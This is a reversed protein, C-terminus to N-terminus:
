KKGRKSLGALTYIILGFFLVVAVFLQGVIQANLLMTVNESINGNSLDQYVATDLTGALYGSLQGTAFYPSASPALATTVGATMSMEDDSGVQEIWNTLSDKNGTLVIILGVENLQAQTETAVPSGALTTCDSAGKLCDSLQRLGIANGPLYGLDKAGYSNGVIQAVATGSPYQSITLIDRGQAALQALLTEAQPSLEGSLGPTYEFAVLVPSSDTSNVATEVAAVSAPVVTFSSKALPLLRLGVVIAVILLLSLAIRVGTALTGQVKTGIQTGSASEEHTIQQLLTIQEQQEPTVTFTQVPDTQHTQTVAAEIAIVGRLGALPGATEEPGEPRSPAGVANEDPPTPRLEEVWEPIDAQALTATLPMTPVDGLMSMWDDNDGDDSDGDAKLWDPIEPNQDLSPEGFAHIDGSAAAFTQGETLWDPLDSGALDTPLGELTEPIEPELSSLSGGLESPIDNEGPRMSAIWDPLAEDSTIPPLGLSEIENPTDDLQSMWDPMEGAMDMDLLSEEESAPANQPISAPPPPATSSEKPKEPPEEFKDLDAEAELILKGTDIDSLDSLWDGEGSLEDAPPPASLTDTFAKIDEDPGLFDDSLEPADSTIGELDALWDTEASEILSQTHALNEAFQESTEAPAFTDSDQEAASFWDPLDAEPTNAETFLTDFQDDTVTEWEPTDSVSTEKTPEKEDDLLNGLRQAVDSETSEQEDAAFDDWWSDDEEDDPEPFADTAPAVTTDSEDNAFSSLWDTGESEDPEPFSETYQTAPEETENFEALWNDDDEGSADPEPFSETYQTAPEETENFEALWNDDDEDSADPEPFSETYQTAPEETENFEALWDDDVSSSAEPETFNNLWDSGQNAPPPDSVATDDDAFLDISPEETSSTAELNSLWETTGEEEEDESPLSDSLWDPTEEEGDDSSAAADLAQLVTADPINSFIEEPDPVPQETQELDPIEDAEALWDPLNADKAGDMLADNQDLKLDDLDPLDDAKGVLDMFFETSITTPANIIPEPDSDHMLWGPLDDTQNKESKIEEIHPLEESPVDEDPAQKGGRRLWDPLTSPDLEGTEGPKRTPLTFAGSGAEPETIEPEETPPIEDPILRSGCNDCFVRDLSNATNCNPCLIHTSLPLKAGCNNCFKSGPTNAYNCEPCNIEHSM